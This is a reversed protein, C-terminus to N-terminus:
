EFETERLGRAQNAHSFLLIKQRGCRSFSYLPVKSLFETWSEREREGKLVRAFPGPDFGTCLLRSEKAVWRNERPPREGRIFMGWIERKRVKCKLAYLRKRKCKTFPASQRYDELCTFVDGFRTKTYFHHDENKCM